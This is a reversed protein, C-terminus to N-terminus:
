GMHIQEADFKILEDATMLTNKAHMSLTHKAEHHIQSAQVQDIEDIRRYSRRARLHYRELGADLSRGVLKIREICGHLFDGTFSLNNVLVDGKIASANLTTALITMDAPTEFGIGDRATVRLRGGSARIETDAPLALTYAASEARELVALVYVKAHNSDTLLLVTDGAVPELLCSSARRATVLVDNEIRVTLTASARVVEGCHQRLSDSKIDAANM